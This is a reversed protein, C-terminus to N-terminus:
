AAPTITFIQTAIIKVFFRLCRRQMLSAWRSSRYFIVILYKLYFFTVYISLYM